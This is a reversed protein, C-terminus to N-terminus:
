CRSRRSPRRCASPRAAGPRPARSRSLHSGGDINRSMEAATCAAIATCMSSNPAAPFADGMLGVSIKSQSPTRASVSRSPWRGANLWVNASAPRGIWQLSSSYPCRSAIPPPLSRSAVTNVGPRRRSRAGAWRGRRAARGSRRAPVLGLGRVVRRHDASPTRGPAARSRASRRGLRGRLAPPERDRRRRASADTRATSSCATPASSAACNVTNAPSTTGALFGAGSM